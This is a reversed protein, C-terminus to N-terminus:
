PLRCGTAEESFEWLRQALSEDGALDSPTRIREDALYAGSHDDLTPDTAAYVTTAAGQAATLMRPSYLKWLFGSIRSDGDQALRTSVLGPHVAYSRVGTGEVRRALENAFLVNALKSRSYTRFGRYRGQPPELEVQDASYHASSALTIVRAPASAGLREALLCTLQFHGLHNVRFTMEHGDASTARSGLMVGANNVLVGLDSTESLFRGAFSNTSESDSLDLQMSRITGNGAESLEAAVAMGVDRDRSTFVVDAGRDALAAATAKGIGSNGGTILVTRGEINWTM